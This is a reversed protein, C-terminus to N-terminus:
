EDEDVKLAGHDSKGGSTLTMFKTVVKCAGDASM